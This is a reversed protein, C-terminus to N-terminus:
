WLWRNHVLQAVAPQRTLVGEIRERPADIVVTLRLPEHCWTTGDHLSQLPLGIRLQPSNGEIVGIHGGVVSHLLKNGAVYPQGATGAM